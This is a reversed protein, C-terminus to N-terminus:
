YSQALWEKAKKVSNTIHEQIKEAELPHYTKALSEGMMEGVYYMDAFNVFAGFSSLDNEETMDFRIGSETEDAGRVFVYSIRDPKVTKMLWHEQSKDADHVWGNELLEDPTVVDSGDVDFHYIRYLKGTEGRELLYEVREMDDEPCQYSEQYQYILEYLVDPHGKLCGELTTSVCIREWQSNEALSRSEPVRPIFEEIVPVGKKYRSVHLYTQKAKNMEMTTTM